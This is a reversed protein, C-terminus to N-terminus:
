STGPQPSSAIRSAPRRFPNLRARLTEMEVGLLLRIGHLLAPLSKRGPGFNVRYDRWGLNDRGYLGLRRRRRALKVLRRSYATICRAAIKTQVIPKGFPPWRLEEEPNELIPSLVFLYYSATDILLAAATLRADGLIEYRDLYIAGLWRQYSREFADNHEGIRRDLADGSLHGVLDDEVLRLTASISLAAHDLGPSYFPDIFSAADGVLAWGRGAYRSTTYPLHSYSHFDEEDLTADALLECMGTRRTVFRFYRELPTDGEPEVLRKDYVLGVSTDGGALPIMWCWWGRGCFHNTANRRRAGLPPLGAERLEVSDLDKVGRWRGWLAATPHEETRRRLRLRRALFAHRGSADIVWRAEVARPVGDETEVDLTAPGDDSLEIGRVRAPRLVTAGEAEALGLLHEDLRARDLQFSPLAPPRSPGVESMELLSREGPKAGPADFWYRLGHKPLHEAKLYEGLGLVENLFYGSIEVTAEGVKRGFREAQEIVLVRLDPSRRRLLLATAAGSLAGGIVVVDYREPAILSPEFPQPLATPDLTTV